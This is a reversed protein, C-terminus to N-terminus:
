ERALAGRRGVKMKPIGTSIHILRATQRGLQRNSQVPRIKVLSKPNHARKLDVGSGVLWLCGRATLAEETM